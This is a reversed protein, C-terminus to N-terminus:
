PDEKRYGRESHSGFTIGNHVAEGMSVLSGHGAAEQQGGLLAGAQEGDRAIAGLHCLVVHEAGLIQREDPGLPAGDVPKPEGDLQAKQPMGALAQSRTLTRRLRHDGEHSVLELYGWGDKGVVREPILCPSLVGDLQLLEQAKAAEPQGVPPGAQLQARVGCPDRIAALRDDLCHEGM